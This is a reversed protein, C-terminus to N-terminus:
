RHWTIMGGNCCGCGCPHAGSDLGNRINIDDPDPHRVGHDPCVRMLLDRESSWVLPWGAMLNGPDPAHLPCPQDCDALTHCDYLQGDHLQHQEHSVRGDVDYATLLHKATPCPWHLDTMVGHPGDCAGWVPRHEVMLRLDDMYLLTQAAPSGAAVHLANAQAVAAPGDFTAVRTGDSEVGVVGDDEVVRWDEGTACQALHLRGTIACLGRYHLIRAATVTVGQVDPM